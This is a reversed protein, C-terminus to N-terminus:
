EFGSEFMAPLLRHRILVVDNDTSNILTRTGGLVFSDIQGPTAIVPTKTVDIEVYSTIRLYGPVGLFPLPVPYRIFTNGNRKLVASASTADGNGCGECRWGTLFVSQRNDTQALSTPNIDGLGCSVGQVSISGTATLDVDILAARASQYMQTGTAVLFSSTPTATDNSRLLAPRIMLVRGAGSHPCLAPVDVMIQAGNPTCSTNDASDHLLQIDYTAVERAALLMDDASGALSSAAAVVSTYEVTSDASCSKRVSGNQAVVLKLNWTTNNAVAKGIVVIDGSALSAVGRPYASRQVGSDVIDYSRWGIGDFTPDEVYLADLRMVVLATKAPDADSFRTGVVVIKGDQTRVADAVFDFAPTSVVRAAGVKNGSPTMRQLGVGFKGAVSTQVEAIVDFDGDSRRLLARVRDGNQQGADFWVDTAGNAVGFTMDRDYAPGAHAHMPMFPAICIALSLLLRRLRILNM